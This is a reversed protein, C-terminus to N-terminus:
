TTSTRRSASFRRAFAARTRKPGFRANASGPSRSRSSASGRIRRPLTRRLPRLVRAGARAADAVPRAERGTRHKEEVAEIAREAEALARAVDDRSETELFIIDEEERHPKKPGSM